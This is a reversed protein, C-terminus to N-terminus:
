CVGNRRIHDTGDQRDMHYPFDFYWKRCFSCDASQHAQAQHVYADTDSCVISALETMLLLLKNLWGRLM